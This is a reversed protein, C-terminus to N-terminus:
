SRGLIKKNLKEYYNTSGFTIFKAMVPAKQIIITDQPEVKVGNEGDVTMYLIDSNNVYRGKVCFVEDPSYLIARSFLSHPCIPTVIITDIADYVIPGGASLTYATSGTPTSFILGDARYSTVFGNKMEVEIDVVKALEGKSIVIDNLAQYTHVGDRNHLTAKILMREQIMYKKDLVARLKDLDNYEIETLFGLRGANIGVVPKDLAVAVRASHIMTGDGGISIVVDIIEKDREQNFERTDDEKFYEQYEPYVYCTSEYKNLQGIVEKTCEIGNRKTLNPIILINM